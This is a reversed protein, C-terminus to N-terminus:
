EDEIVPLMWLPAPLHESTLYLRRGDHSYCIAEGQRRPPLTIPRGSRSFADGWTEDDNRTYEYARDYTALVARRGDPSIDMATVMPVWPAAIRSPAFTSGPMRTMSGGVVAALEGRYDSAPLVVRYVNSLGIVSKSALYIGQRKRASADVAVAECNRPGDPFRIVVTAQVEASLTQGLQTPDIQPEPIIYLQCRKRQATNDGIDAILLFPQGDLQYSCIDEWDVNKVREGTIAVTALAQGQTDIAFLQPPNGSDNHTWLVGPTRRSAALGSSEHIRQDALEGILKPRGYPAPRTCGAALWLSLGVWVWPYFQM